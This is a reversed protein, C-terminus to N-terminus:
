AGLLRAVAEPNAPFYFHVYSATLRGVRYIPEGPTNGTLKLARM